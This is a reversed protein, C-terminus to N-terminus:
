ILVFIYICVIHHNLLPLIPFPLVHVVFNVKQHMDNSVARRIVSIVRDIPCAIGSVLGVPHRLKPEEVYNGLDDEFDFMRFSPISPSNFYPAKKM